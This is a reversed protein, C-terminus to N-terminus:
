YRRLRWITLSWFELSRRSKRAVYSLRCLERLTSIALRTVDREWFVSKREIEVADSSVILVVVDFWSFREGRSVLDQACVEKRTRCSVIALMSVIIDAKAHPPPEKPEVVVAMWIASELSGVNVHKGLSGGSSLSLIQFNKLVGSGRSTSTIMRNAYPSM